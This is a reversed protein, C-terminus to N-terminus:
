AAVEAGVVRPPTRNFGWARALVHRHVVGRLEDLTLAEALALKAKWGRPRGLGRDIAERRAEEAWLIAAIWTKEQEPNPQPDRVFEIGGDWAAMVGWWEPVIKVAAEATRFGAVLTATTAILGYGRVQSPLRRTSDADSKIEFTHLAHPTFAAVDVVSGTVGGYEDIVVAGPPLRRDLIAHLNARIDRDHTV